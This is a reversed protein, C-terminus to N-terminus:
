LVLVKDTQAADEAINGDIRLGINLQAVEEYMGCQVVFLICDIRVRRQSQIYVDSAQVRGDRTIIINCSGEIVHIILLNFGHFNRHIAYLSSRFVKLLPDVGGAGACRAAHLYFIRVLPKGIRRVEVLQEDFQLVAFAVNNFRSALADAEAFHILDNDVIVVLLLHLDVTLLNNETAYVAM